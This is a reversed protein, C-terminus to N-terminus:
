SQNSFLVKKYCDSIITIIIIVVFVLINKVVPTKKVGTREFCFGLFCWVVIPRCMEAFCVSKVGGWIFAPLLPLDGPTM